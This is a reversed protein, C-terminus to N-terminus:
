VFKHGDTVNDLSYYDGNIYAYHTCSVRYTEGPVASYCNCQASFIATDTAYGDPATAITNWFIGVKEQVKINKVGIETADYNAGTLFEIHLYSGDVYGMRIVCNSLRVARGMPNEELDNLGGFVVDEDIDMTLGDTQVMDMVVVAEEAASASMPNIGCAIVVALVMSLIQKKRTM